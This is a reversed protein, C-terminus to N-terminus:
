PQNHPTYNFKQGGFAAAFMIGGKAITFVIM